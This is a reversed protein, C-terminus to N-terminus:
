APPFIKKVLSILSLLFYFYIYSSIKFVVFAGFGWALFILGNKIEQLLAPMM